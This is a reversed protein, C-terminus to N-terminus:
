VTEDDGGKGQEIAQDISSDFEQHDDTGILDGKTVLERLKVYRRENKRAEELKRTATALDQALLALQTRLSEFSEGNLIVNIDGWQKDDIRQEINSQYGSDAKLNIVIKADKIDSM